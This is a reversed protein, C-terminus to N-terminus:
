IAPVFDGVFRQDIAIRSERHNCVGHRARVTGHGVVDFLSGFPGVLEEPVGKRTWFKNAPVIAAQYVCGVQDGLFLVALM